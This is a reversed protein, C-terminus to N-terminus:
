NDKEIFIKNLKIKQMIYKDVLKYSEILFISILTSILINSILMIIFKLWINSFSLYKYIYYIFSSSIGQAFYFFIANKGIYNIKNDKKIKLKDKLYFFLIISINAFFLYPLSPPFKIDQINAIGIKNIKFVILLVIFNVVEVLILQKIDKFKYSFSLYGVLYILLYFSILGNLFLMTGQNYSTYIFIFLMLAIVSLLVEKKNDKCLKNILYIITTGIVTVQIYMKMFWISGPVVEIKTTHPFIYVIWQLIDKVILTERFFILILGIYIVLFFLWKKWQDIIGKINKIISNSYNFSIGAIFMFVPVDILLALNSFWKPLYGEGSWFATHILIICLTAIGRLFDINYNREKKQM